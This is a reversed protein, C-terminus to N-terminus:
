KCCHHHATLPPGPPQSGPFATNYIDLLASSFDQASSAKHQLCREKKTGRAWKNSVSGERHKHDPRPKLLYFWTFCTNEPRTLQCTWKQTMTKSTRATSTVVSPFHARSVKTHPTRATTKEGPCLLVLGASCSVSQPQSAIMVWQHKNYGTPCSSSHGAPVMGTGCSGSFNTLRDGEYNRVESHERAADQLWVM